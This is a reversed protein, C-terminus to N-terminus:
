AAGSKIENLPKTTLKPYAESVILKILQADTDIYKTTSEANDIWIPASINFHNSLTNIIDLGANIKAGHNADQFPVGNILVDCVNFDLGGNIQTKFLRFKVYKFYSNVASDLLEAETREFQDTLDKKGELKIIQQSLEKEENMLQKIRKKQSENIDEQRLEDKISDIKKTIEKKSDALKKVEDGKNPLESLDKERIEIKQKLLKVSASDENLSESDFNTLNNKADNLLKEAEELESNLENLNDEIQEKLEEHEQIESKLSIGEKDLADLIKAKNENFNGLMEAKMEEVKEPSFPTKCTPCVFSNEEFEFTKSDEEDWQKRKEDLESNKDSILNELEKIKKTKVKISESLSDFEDGAKSQLDLLSKREKQRKESESSELKMLEARLKNLEEKKKQLEPNPATLDTIQQEISFLESEAETLELKLSDFDKEIINRNAEDVRTPLKEKRDKLEKIKYNLSKKLDDLTMEELDDSLPLLEKNELFVDSVTINEAISTLLSKRKEWNLESAFYLPDTVIKFTSELLIEELAKKFEGAQKPVNNISYETSHGDFVKNSSGRRERWVERYTKEFQKVRGDVELVLIVKHDLGHVPESNEDLTKIEFATKDDSNKNFLIWRFADNLTTKGTGNDGYINLGEPPIQVTYEGKIGKFNILTISKIIIEKKNNKMTVESLVILYNTLRKGPRM